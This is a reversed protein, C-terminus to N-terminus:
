ERLIRTGFFPSGDAKHSFDMRPFAASSGSVHAQEQSVHVHEEAILLRLILFFTPVVKTVDFGERRSAAAHALQWSWECSSVMSM